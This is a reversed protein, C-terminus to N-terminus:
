KRHGGAGIDEVGEAPKVGVVEAALKENKPLQKMFPFTLVESISYNDTL